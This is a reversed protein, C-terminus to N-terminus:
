AFNGAVPEQKWSEDDHECYSQAAVAAVWSCCHVRSTPGGGGVCVRIVGLPATSLSRRSLARVPDKLPHPSVQLSPFALSSFSPGFM